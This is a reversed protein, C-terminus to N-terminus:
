RARLRWHLLGQCVACMGVALAVLAGYAGPAGGTGRLMTDQLLMTGYTAPLAYAIALAPQRLADLPLTFGSFFVVALLALLSLQVAQRESTAVLSCALGLGTSAFALLVLALAFRWVSGLLPVGLVLLLVAVVMAAVALTFGVYALFKGLLLHLGTAPSIAYLEFAGGLRERVLALAGMSVAIHQVLLALVSPAYYTIIDPQLPAVNRAEVALPAIVVEPPMGTLQGLARSLQGVQTALLDLGLRERLPAGTPKAELLGAQELEREAAAIRAQVAAVERRLPAAEPGLPDLAAALDQTRAQAEALLRAVEARDWTDAATRALRLLEDVRALDTAAQALNAQQGGVAQLVIERNIAGAMTVAFNPVVWQWVPDIQNYLVRITAQRGGVITAFADAPLIVVADVGRRQLQALAGAEDSTYETVRLFADFQGQYEELLRPREQGPPLVVVARPPRATTDAGIGFVLLLALPGLILTPVQWPRGLLERLDKLAIALIATPGM